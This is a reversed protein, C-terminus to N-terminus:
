KKKIHLEYILNTLRTIDRCIVGLEESMDAVNEAYVIAGSEPDDLLEFASNIRGSDYHVRANGVAVKIQEVTYRIPDKYHDAFQELTWSYLSLAKKANEALPETEDTRKLFHILPQRISLEFRDILDPDGKIAGVELSDFIQKILFKIEEEREEKSELGDGDHM